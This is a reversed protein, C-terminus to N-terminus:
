KDELTQLQDQYQARNQLCLIKRGEFDLEDLDGIGYSNEPMRPM